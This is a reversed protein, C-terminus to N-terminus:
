RSRLGTYGSSSSLPRAGAGPRRWSRSAAACASAWADLRTYAEPTLMNLTAVGAAMTVPNANFTGGHIIWASGKRPDYFDMIERRGGFAASTSRRHDQRVDGILGSPSGSRPAGRRHPVLDGRRLDARDGHRETIERLRALFGEVPPLLGANRMMPDVILCALQAAEAELIGRM